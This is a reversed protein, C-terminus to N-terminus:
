PLGGRDISLLSRVGLPLETVSFGQAALVAERNEYWHGVLLLIAQQYQQPVATASTGYGAVYRVRVGNVAQLTVAPWSAGSKLAVQGPEDATDVIYNSAAFTAETGDEDTYYVGTVSLLPPRPLRIVDGVPWDNLYLDYTAAVFARRSALECYQRAATIYGSLLIDDDAIDIRCQAKAEAITVPEIAPATAVVLKM